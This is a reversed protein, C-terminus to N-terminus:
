DSKLDARVQDQGRAQHRDAMAMWARRLVRPHPRGVHAPRVAHCRPFPMMSAPRHLHYLSCTSRSVWLCCSLWCSPKGEGQHVRGFVWNEEREWCLESLQEFNAPLAGPQDSPYAYRRTALSSSSELLLEPYPTALPQCDSPQAAEAQEHFYM